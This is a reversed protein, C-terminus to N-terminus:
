VKFSKILDQDINMKSYRLMQLRATKAECLDTFKYARWHWAPFPCHSCMGEYAQIAFNYEESGRELLPYFDADGFLTNKFYYIKFKTDRKQLEGNKLKEPMHYLSDNFAQVYNVPMTRQIGDYGIVKQWFLLARPDDDWDNQEVEHDGLQNDYAELARTLLNPNFPRKGATIVENRMTDLLKWFKLLKRKVASNKKLNVRYKPEGSSTLVGAKSDRIAQVLKDLQKYIPKWKKEEAKKWGKPYQEDYQRNAEKEDDLMAFYRKIMEAMQTDDVALAAQYPKLNYKHGTPSTVFDKEELQELLLSPDKKLIAEAEIPQGLVVASLLKRLLELKRTKISKFLTSVLPVQADGTVTNSGEYGLIINLVGKPVGTEKDEKSEMKSLKQLRRMARCELLFYPIKVLSQGNKGFYVNRLNDIKPLPKISDM